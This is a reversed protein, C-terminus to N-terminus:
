FEHCVKVLSGLRNEILYDFLKGRNGSEVNEFERLIDDQISQPIYDFDVLIQNRAFGRKMTETTLFVSPDQTIWEALKKSNISKQREKKLDLVDDASLFNPIGDGRDGRIIHEIVFGKPNDTSIFREIAPSYQKVGPYKQLQMFDKDSSLILIEEQQHFNKSIIAIVDDAEAGSVEVIKYPFNEKLEAKVKNITTFILGWDFESKDRDKKRNSKYYPFAAKRWYNNSDCCIVLKGYKSGFQKKYSRLVDLVTYRILSENIEAEPHRKLETMLSSIFVQNMDVLIM